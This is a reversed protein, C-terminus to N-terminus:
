KDAKSKKKKEFLDIKGNNDKDLADIFDARGNDDKDFTDKLKEKLSKNEETVASLTEGLARNESSLSDKETKLQENQAALEAAEKETRKKAKEISRKDVTSLIRSIVMGVITCVIIEVIANIGVFAVAFQLVSMSGLNLSLLSDLESQGYLGILATMFFCTNFVAGCFSSVTYATFRLPKVLSIGKFIVGVLWGMILRPFFCVIFAYFPNVELLIAGLASMGFCQIFSTLGFVGGLIAGATPGLWIAGIIVPVTLFTIEIAGVKLYGLPTFAMVFIIATLIALRAIFYTKSSKWDNPKRKAEGNESATAEAVNKIEDTM